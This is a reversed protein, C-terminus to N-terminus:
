GLNPLAPALVNINLDTSTPTNLGASVPAAGQSGSPSTFLDWEASGGRADADFGPVPVFTTAAFTTVSALGLASGLALLSNSFLSTTTM